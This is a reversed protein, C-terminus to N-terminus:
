KDVNPLDSGGTSVFSNGNSSTWLGGTISDSMSISNGICVTDLGIILGAIPLPNVTIM